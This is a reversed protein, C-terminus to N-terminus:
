DDFRKPKRKIRTPRDNLVVADCSRVNADSVATESVNDRSELIESNNVDSAVIDTDGNIDGHSQDATSTPDDEELFCVKTIPREKIVTGCQVKVSRVHGSRDPRTEVVRGLPWQGRPLTDDVVLVLDRDKLNRRTSTWRQREQLTPLYERLWRRWFVSALYQAQQFWRKMRTAANKTTGPPICSNSRLLLLMNPTLPELDNPDDSVATLPRENLIKEVEAMLTLLTEDGVIQEKLISKLITKVSRVMREWVGGMHSAAPPNFHWEIQRQLLKAHIADQNWEQLLEKLEREGARFNTGNDSYICEPRGRRSIFRYLAGLFSDTDLTHAIELHIARSSLCTFLCGYRKVHSRGQKVYLPGFYDVGISSFPPRYPRVRAEPLPAMFQQGTPASRRKCPLCRHIVRRVTARGSPIWYKRRLQALVHNVGSHGSEKHIAEILIKTLHSSKPLILQHKNEYKVPAREIRGGVRLGGDLFPALRRLTSSTSINKGKSLSEMEDSYELKQVYVILDTTADDMETVTIPKNSIKVSSDGSVKKKLYKKFRAFWAVARVLKHFSSYTTILEDLPNMITTLFTTKDEKVEPDNDLPPLCDPQLPFEEEPSSLFEPGSLWRKMGESNDPDLGRSAIDAPNKGSRVHRWQSPSTFERIIALRNAVFTKYRTHENRVYQLVATSDSWYYYEDVHRDLEEKMLEAVKTAVVAAMLELRPISVTKLPALRSKGMLFACSISEGIIRIYSM